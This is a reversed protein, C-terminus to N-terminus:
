GRRVAPRGGLVKYAKFVAPSGWRSTRQRVSTSGGGKQVRLESLKMRSKPGVQTQKAQPLVLRSVGIGAAACHRHRLPVRRKPLYQLNKIFRKVLFRLQHKKTSPTVQPHCKNGKFYHPHPKSSSSAFTPSPHPAATSSAPALFASHLCGRPLPCLPSRCVSSESVPVCGGAWPLCLGRQPDKLTDSMGAVM